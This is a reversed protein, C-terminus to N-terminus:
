LRGGVLCARRASSVGGEGESHGGRLTGQCERLRCAHDREGAALRLEDDGVVGEARVTVDEEGGRGYEERAPDARAVDEEEEPVVILEM